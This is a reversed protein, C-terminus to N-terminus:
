RPRIPVTAVATLNGAMDNIRALARRSAIQWDAPFTVRFRKKTDRYTLTRSPLRPEVAM